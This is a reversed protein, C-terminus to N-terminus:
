WVGRDHPGASDEFVIVEFPKLKSKNIIFYINNQNIPFRRSAAILAIINSM